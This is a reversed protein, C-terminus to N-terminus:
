FLGFGILGGGQFPNAPDAGFGLVQFQVGAQFGRARDNEAQVRVAWCQCTSTYELGGRNTLLISRHLSYGMQYEVAWNDTLRLRTSATVQNIRSFDNRYHNFGGGISDVDQVSRFNEFFLPVAQRYRYGLSVYSSRKLGLRHELPLAVDFLGQDFRTHDIDYAVNFRTRIGQAAFIQGDAVALQFDGGRAFDYAVSFDLQGALARAEGEGRYFQNGFGLTVVNADFVRDAADLVVNDLSLQRIRRQPVATRPVFLPNGEQHGSMKRLYAWSARPELLHQLPPLGPLDAEGLLQTTLDLRGTLVGRDAFSQAETTYLAQQWGVEPKVELADFLRFPRGLHPNLIVRQGRDALPEGEEFRGDDVGFKFSQEPPIADPVAAIGIDLFLDDGVVGGSMPTLDLVNQAKRYSWFDTYDADLGLELGGLSEVRTPMWGLQVDPARQLLFKDRDVRDPNQRDDRYLASVVVAGSGDAGFHRFGFATSELFRDRRENRLEDFDRPYENDSVVQIDTRLRVDAPAYVDNDFLVAWRNPNYVDKKVTTEEPTTEPPVPPVLRTLTAQDPNQDHLYSLYLNTWSKEGYVTEVQLEPKFGRSTLYRPTLVVNVNYRAAWFFPLAVDFGNGGGIKFEPPLVGSARDTKVPFMLWPLWVGPVGLVDVTANKVTAYDGLEVDADEANVQWPLRSEEDPCRCTSFSADRATYTEEGTKELERAAMRFDGEGMDLRGDVVLGQQGRADFEVFRAELVGTGDDVRVNGVAIGRRTVRNFVLWDADIRREGQVVHASGEAIYVQRQTEYVIRDATIETPVDRRLEHDPLARADGARLLLLLVLAAARRAVRRPSEGHPERRLSLPTGGM